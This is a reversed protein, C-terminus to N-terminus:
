CHLDRTFVAVVVAAVVVSAVIFIVRELQAITMLWTCKLETTPISPIHASQQQLLLLVVTYTSPIYSRLHSRYM